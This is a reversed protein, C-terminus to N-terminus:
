YKINLTELIKIELIKINLIELIKIEVVPYEELFDKDKQGDVGM